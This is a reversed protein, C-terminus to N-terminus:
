LVLRSVVSGAADTSAVLAFDYTSNAREGISIGILLTNRRNGSPDKAPDLMEVLLGRVTVGPCYRSIADQAKARLSGVTEPDALEMLYSRVDVGFRADDARSQGFLVNQIRRADAAHGTLTEVGGRDDFALRFEAKGPLKSM